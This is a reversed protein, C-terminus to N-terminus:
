RKEQCLEILVGNTSKPHLFVVIKNDAGDKPEESIFEFGEKKLREVEAYIDDVGFAIHHVGEGKKEIFKSIPSDERTSELLEIKSEGIKYFSTKVGEREVEEMKYAERGILKAFLSDSIELSKVAIGLHEIKDLMFKQQKAIITAVLSDPKNM